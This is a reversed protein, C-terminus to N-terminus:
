GGKVADGKVPTVGINSRVDIALHAVAAHADTREIVGLFQVASKVQAIRRGAHGHGDVTRGRHDQAEEQVGGDILRAFFEDTRFSKFFVNFGEEFLLPIVLPQLPGGVMPFQGIAM